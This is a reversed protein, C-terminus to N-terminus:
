DGGGTRGSAVAFATTVALFGFLIDIASFSDMFGVQAIQSKMSQVTGVIHSQLATKYNEQDESSMRAYRAKADAAIDKPFDDPNEADDESKGAPWKIAKGADTYEKLVAHEISVIAQTDDIHIKNVMSTSIKDEIVWAYAWYRGGAVAAIAVVAALAGAADDERGGSFCASGFGVLGGVGWAIWGIEVNAYRAIAAWILAGVVGGVVAGCLCRLLSM